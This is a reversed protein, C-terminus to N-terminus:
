PQGSLAQDLAQKAQLNKLLAERLATDSALIAMRRDNESTTKPLLALQAKELAAQEELLGKKSKLILAKSDIGATQLTKTGQLLTDALASLTDSAVKARSAKEGHRATLLKGDESFTIKMENDQFVFNDYSIVMLRGLQPVPGEALKVPKSSAECTASDNSGIEKCLSVQLVGIVPDRYRIGDLTGGAKQLPLVGHGDAVTPRASADLKLTTIDRFETATVTVGEANKAVFKNLWNRSQREFIGEITRGNPPWHFMHTDTIEEVDKEYASKARSLVAMKDILKSVQSLLRDQTSPSSGSGFLSSAEKMLRLKDTETEVVASATSM